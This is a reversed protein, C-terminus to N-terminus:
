STECTCTDGNCVECTGSDKYHFFTRSSDLNTKSHADTATSSNQTYREEQHGAGEFGDRHQNIKPILRIWNNKISEMMDVSPMQGRTQAAGIYWDRDQEIKQYVAQPIKGGVWKIFALKWKIHGAVAERFKVDDPIKPYGDKDTPIAKFAIMVKGTEFNSFLFNDNVKYTLDSKCFHDGNNKCYYHHFADTSYRMPRYAIKDSNCNDIDSTILGRATIIYHLDCPLSARYNSVTLEEVKEEMHFPAGILEIAEGAWEVADAFEIQDAMGMDRYVKGIVARVSVYRGNTLSM